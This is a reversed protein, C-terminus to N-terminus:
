PSPAYNRAFHLESIATDAPHFAKPLAFDDGDIPRVDSIPSPRHDVDAEELGPMPQVAHAVVAAGRDLRRNGIRNELDGALPIPVQGEAM